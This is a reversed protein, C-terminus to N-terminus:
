TASVIGRKLISFTGADLRQVDPVAGPIVRTFDYQYADPEIDTDASTAVVHMLGAAPDDAADDGATAIVQFVGPDVDDISEKVTLYIKWGTIDVPGSTATFSFKYRKTNGQPFDNISM